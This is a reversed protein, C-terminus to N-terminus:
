PTVRLNAPSTGAREIAINVTFGQHSETHLPCLGQKNMEGLGLM